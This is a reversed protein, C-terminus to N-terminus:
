DDNVVITQGLLKGLMLIVPQSLNNLVIKDKKRQKMKILKAPQLLSRLESLASIQADMFATRALTFASADFSGLDYKEEEGLQERFNVLNQLNAAIGAELVKEQM